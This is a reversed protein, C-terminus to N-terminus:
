PVNMLKGACQLLSLQFSDFLKTLLSWKCLLILLVKRGSIRCISRYVNRGRFSERGGGGREREREELIQIFALQVVPATLHVADIVNTSSVVAAAGSVLFERVVSYVAVTLKSHAERSRYWVTSGRELSM